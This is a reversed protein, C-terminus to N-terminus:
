QFLFVKLTAGITRATRADLSQRYGVDLAVGGQTVLGAGVSWWRTDLTEDKSFGARIPVLNVLLLEAGVGYRNTTKGTREFDARWDATVQFSRDNGIGIGAGAGMPAADTNAISVLNYGAAGISFLDAVQWFVGADATVADVGRPGSLSLYKGAVAVHFDQAIPGGLSLSWLSGTYAGRQARVYSVGGAVPSSLSDVVSAGFFQADTDAGRRDTLLLAEVSYRKRAGAAAPNVFLGENSQAIGVGGELVLSRPGVLDPIGAPPPEAAAAAGALLALGCLIRAHM